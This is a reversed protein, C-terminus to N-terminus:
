FDSRMPGVLFQKVFAVVLFDNKNEIIGLNRVKAGILAKGAETPNESPRVRETLENFAVVSVSASLDQYFAIKLGAPVIADVVGPYWSEEFLMEVFNGRKFPVDPSSADTSGEMAASAAKTPKKKEAKGKSKSAAGGASAPPEVFPLGFKECTERTLLWKARGVPHIAMERLARSVAAKSPGPVQALFAEVIKDASLVEGQAVLKALAEVHAEALGTGGVPRGSPAKRKTGIAKSGEAASDGKTADGEAGAAGSAYNESACVVDMPGVMTSETPAESAAETAAETAEEMMVADTTTEAVAAETSIETSDAPAVATTEMAMAPPAAEPAAAGGEHTSVTPVSPLPTTENGEAGKSSPTVSNLPLTKATSDTSTIVVESGSAAKESPGSSM